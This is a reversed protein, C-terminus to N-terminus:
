FSLECYLNRTLGAIVGVTVGVSGVTVSVSGIIIGVSGVIMGDSGVTVGISGIIVRDHQVQKLMELSPMKLLSGSVLETHCVV